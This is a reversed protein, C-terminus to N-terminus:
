DRSNLMELHEYIQRYKEQQEDSTTSYWHYVCSKSALLEGDDYVWDGVKADSIYADNYIPKQFEIYEEDLRVFDNDNIYKM